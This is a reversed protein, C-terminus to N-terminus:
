YRVFLLDYVHFLHIKLSQIYDNIHEKNTKSKQAMTLAQTGEHIPLM